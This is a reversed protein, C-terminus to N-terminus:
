GSVVRAELSRAYRPETHGYANHEVAQFFSSAVVDALQLGAIRSHDEAFILQDDIHDWHIPFYSGRAKQLQRLHGLYIRFDDYDMGGRRSFIIKVVPHREPKSECVRRATDTIKELVYRILYKYLVNKEKDCVEAFAGHNEITKKNSLI